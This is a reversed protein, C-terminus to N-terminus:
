KITSEIYLLAGNLVLDNPTKDDIILNPNVGVGNLKNGSRRYFEDTSLKIIGGYISFHNQSVGKGYTREGIVINDDDQLSAAILEAASMTRSNVMVVINKHPKSELESKYVVHNKKNDYSTFVIGKRVLLNCIKFASEVYGGSNNRLDIIIGALDNMQTKKLISELNCVSFQNICSIKIVLAKKNLYMESQLDYIKETCVNQKTIIEETIIADDSDMYYSYEDLVNFMGILAAKYLEEYSVSKYYKKSVINIARLIFRTFYEDKEDVNNFLM